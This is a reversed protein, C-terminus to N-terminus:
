RREHIQLTHIVRIYTSRSTFYILIAFKWRVNGTPKVVEFVNVATERNKNM